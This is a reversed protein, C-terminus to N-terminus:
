QAKLTPSVLEKNEYINGIVEYSNPKKFYFTTVEDNGLDLGWRCEHEFWKVIGRKKEKTFINLEEIIDNHYIEKGNKDKLGTFQMLEFNDSWYLDIDISDGKPSTVRYGTFHWFESTLNFDLSKVTWMKKGEKDWARFKIERKM